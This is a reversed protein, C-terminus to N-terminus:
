SPGYGFSSDPWQYTLREADESQRVRRLALERAHVGFARGSQSRRTVM